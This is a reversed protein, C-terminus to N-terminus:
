LYGSIDLTEKNKINRSDAKWQEALERFFPETYSLFQKFSDCFHNQGNDGPDRIRDKPCGGYCFSLWNCSQCTKSIDEKIKGFKEQRESNLMDILRNEKNNGLKWKAEVFYDCSYVDGNHEVVLYSGCTQELTCEPSPMDVLRYFLNDFYRIYSQKGEALDQYWLKFIEILFKAYQTSSMSYSAAKNSNNIDREVVPIFQMWSIGLNKFFRYLEGPFSASYNTLSIMANVEVGKELLMQAIHYVKEWSGKGNAYTRYKDHIHKPGDLSLGVLFNNEKLFDAWETNLLTGNTQFGNGIIKGHGYKKEFEIVKKYFDLGALAPEGGQWLFNVHTGSQRIAQFILEEVINDTMKHVSSQPYLSNKDLYFCYECNLNCDPGAPKVVITQLVKRM